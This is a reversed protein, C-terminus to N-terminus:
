QVVGPKAVTSEKIQNSPLAHVKHQVVGPKAVTPEKIQNSPLARVKHQVVGPKAVTPEKMQKVNQKTIDAALLPAENVGTAAPEAAYAFDVGLATGLALVAATGILPKHDHVPKRSM